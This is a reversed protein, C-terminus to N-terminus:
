EMVKIVLVLYACLLFLIAVNIWIDRMPDKKKESKVNKIPIEKPQEESCDECMLRRRQPMHDIPPDGVRAPWGPGM